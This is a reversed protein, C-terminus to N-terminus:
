TSVDRGEGRVLHVRRTGEGTSVPCTEDMEGPAAPADALWEAPHASSGSPTRREGIPAAGAGLAARAWLRGRGFGGAGLAARAQLPRLLRGGGGWGRWSAGARNSGRERAPLSHTYLLSVPLPLLPSPPPVVAGHRETLTCYPCPYPCCYPPLSHTYLLSVPLPLLLSTPPTYLLSVPLPLLLSPPPLRGEADARGRSLEAAARPACVRGPAPWAGIAGLAVGAAGRGREGAV